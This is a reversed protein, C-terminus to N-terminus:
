GRQACDHLTAGEFDQAMGQLKERLSADIDRVQFWVKPVRTERRSIIASRVKKGRLDQLYAQAAEETSFVGLSVSWRLPGPDQLIFYDDVGLVKLEAAKRAAAARSGQPPMHVWWGATEEGRYQALRAGLALPELRQAARTADVPSFSGWELCAVKVPEPPPAAPEPKAPAAAPARALERETVIRLKHPELQQTLPQRDV